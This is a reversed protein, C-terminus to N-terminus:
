ILEQFLTSSISFCLTETMCSSDTRSILQVINHKYDVISYQASFVKHFPYIEHWTNKECCFISLCLFLCVMYQPSTYLKLFRIWPLINLNWLPMFSVETTKSMNQYTLSPLHSCLITKKNYKVYIYYTNKSYILYKM